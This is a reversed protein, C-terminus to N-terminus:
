TNKVFEYSHLWDIANEYDTFIRLPTKDSDMKIFVKIIEENTNKGAIIAQKAFTSKSHQDIILRKAKEDISLPVRVDILKFLDNKGYMSEIYEYVENLNSYKLYANENFQIHIVNNEKHIKCISNEM